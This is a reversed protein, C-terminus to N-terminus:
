DVQCIEEVARALRELKARGALSTGVSLALAAQLQALVEERHLRLLSILERERATFAPAPRSLKGILRELEAVFSPDLEGAPSM